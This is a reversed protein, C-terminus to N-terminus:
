GLQDLFRFPSMRSDCSSGAAPKGPGKGAPLGQEAAIRGIRRELDYIRKKLLSTHSEIELLGQKLESVLRQLPNREAM